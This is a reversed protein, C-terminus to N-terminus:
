KGVSRNDNQIKILVPSKEEPLKVALGISLIGDNLSAGTVETYESLRFSKAFKRTSIGRHVYQTEPRRVPRDGKVTLVNDKLEITLDSQVFGAIALEIEFSKDNYKVINHPPYVDKANNTIQQLENLIHDFGIFATKPFLTSTM